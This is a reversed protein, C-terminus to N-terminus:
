SHAFRCHYLAIAAAQVVNFSEKQGFMPIELTIDCAALVEKEVGEVERGLVIAIKNPPTYDPLKQSGPTQELAAITYGENKLDTFVTFVDEVHVWKIQKEADLATKHIQNDIKRALHPLRTDGDQFPYPTYGTLYVKSVDLGEATRLLSGM